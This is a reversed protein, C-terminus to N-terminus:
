VQSGRDPHEPPPNQPLRILPKASVKYLVLIFRNLGEVKFRQDLGISLISGTRRDDPCDRWEVRGHRHTGRLAENYLRTMRGDTACHIALSMTKLVPGTSLSRNTEFGIRSLQPLEYAM